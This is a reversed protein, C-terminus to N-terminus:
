DLVAFFHRAEEDKLNEGAWAYVEEYRNFFFDSLDKYKPNNYYEWGLHNLVGALETLVKYNRNKFQCRNWTDRVADMGFPVAVKFDAYFLTSPRKLGEAPQSAPFREADSLAYLAQLDAPINIKTM